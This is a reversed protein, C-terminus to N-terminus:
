AGLRALPSDHKTPRRCAQRPPCISCCSRHRRFPVSCSTTWISALGTAPHKPWIARCSPFCCRSIRYHPCFDRHVRVRSWKRIQQRGGFALPPATKWCRSASTSIACRGCEWIWRHAAPRSTFIASLPSRMAASTDLSCENALTTRTARCIITSTPRAPSRSSPPTGAAAGFFDGDVGLAINIDRHGDGRVPQHRLWSEFRHDGPLKRAHAQPRPNDKYRERDITM